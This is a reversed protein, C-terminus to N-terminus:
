SSNAACARRARAIPRRPGRQQASQRPDIFRPPQPGAIGSREAQAGRRDGPRRGIRAARVMRSPRGTSLGRPRSWRIFSRTLRCSAAWDTWWFRGDAVCATIAITTPTVRLAARCASSQSSIGSRNAPRVERPQLRRWGSESPRLNEVSRAQAAHSGIWDRAAAAVFVAEAHASSAADFTGVALSRFQRINRVSARCPRAFGPLARM